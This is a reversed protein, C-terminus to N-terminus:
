KGWQRPLPGGVVSVKHVVRTSPLSELRPNPNGPNWGTVKGGVEVRGKRTTEGTSTDTRGRGIPVPGGTELNRCLTRTEMHSTMVTSPLPTREPVHVPSQLWHLCEAELTPETSPEHVRSDHSQAGEVHRRERVVVSPESM